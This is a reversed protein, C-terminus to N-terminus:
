RKLNLMQGAVFKNKPCEPFSNTVPIWQTCFRSRYENDDLDRYTVQGMVYAAGGQGSKVREFMEPRDQKGTGATTGIRGRPPVNGVSLPESLKPEFNTIDIKDETIIWEIQTSVELAPFDSSNVFAVQVLTENDILEISDRFVYPTRSARRPGSSNESLRSPTSLTPIPAPVKPLRRIEVPHAELNTPPLPTPGVSKTPIDAKSGEGRETPPVPTIWLAIGSYAFVVFCFLLGGRWLRWRDPSDVVWSNGLAIFLTMFAALGLLIFLWHGKLKGAKDLVMLVVALVIGAIGIIDSFSIRPM